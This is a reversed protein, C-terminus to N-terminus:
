KVAAAPPNAPGSSDVGVHALKRVDDVQSLEEKSLKKFTLSKDYLAPANPDAKLVAEIEAQTKLDKLPGEGDKLPTVVVTDDKPEIKAAWWYHDADMGPAMFDKNDLAECCIFTVDGFKVLWAKYNVAEASMDAGKGRTALYQLYYTHKDWPRLIVLAGEDDSSGEAPVSRWAGVLAQDVSATEPDGIPAPLCAFTALLLAALPVFLLVGVLTRKKPSWRM